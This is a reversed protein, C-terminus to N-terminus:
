FFFFCHLRSNCLTYKFSCLLLLKRGQSNSQFEEKVGKKPPNPNMTIWSNFSCRMKYDLFLETLFVIFVQLIPDFSKQQTLNNPGGFAGVTSLGWQNWHYTTVKTFAQKIKEGCSLRQWLRTIFCSIIRGEFATWSSTRHSSWRALMTLCWHQGPQPSKQLVTLPFLACQYQACM